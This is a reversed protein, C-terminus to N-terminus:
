GISQQNVQWDDDKKEAVRAAGSDLLAIAERVAAEVQARDAFGQARNEFADEIIHELEQM